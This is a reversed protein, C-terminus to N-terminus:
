YRQQALSPLALSTLFRRVCRASSTHFDARNLLMKRAELKKAGLCQGRGGVGLYRLGNPSDEFMAVAGRATEMEGGQVCVGGGAEPMGLM